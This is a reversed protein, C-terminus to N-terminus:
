LHLYLCLRHGPSNNFWSLSVCFVWSFCLYQSRTLSLFPASRMFLNSLHETTYSQILWAWLTMSFDTPLFTQFDGPGGTRGGWTLHAVLVLAVKLRFSHKHKKKKM